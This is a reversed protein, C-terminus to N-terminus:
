KESMEGEEKQRLKKIKREKNRERERKSRVSLWTHMRLLAFFM